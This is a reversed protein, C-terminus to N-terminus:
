GGASPAVATVRRGKGRRRGNARVSEPEKEEAVRITACGKKAHSSRVEFSRAKPDYGLVRHTEKGDELFLAFGKGLMDNVFEHLQRAAADDDTDFEAKYDGVGANLVAIEM